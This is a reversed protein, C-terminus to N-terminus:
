ANVQGTLGINTVRAGVDEPLETLCNVLTHYIKDPDQLDGNPHHDPILPDFLVNGQFPHMRLNGKKIVDKATSQVETNKEVTAVVKFESNREEKTKEVAVVKVSTTGFDIGLALDVPKAAM